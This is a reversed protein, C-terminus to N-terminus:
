TGYISATNQRGRVPDVFTGVGAGGTFHRRPQSDDTPYPFTAQAATNRAVSPPVLLPVSQPGAPPPVYGSDSPSMAYLHYSRAITIPPADGTTVFPQSSGELPIHLYAYPKTRNDM